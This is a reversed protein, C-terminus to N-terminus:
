EASRADIRQAVRQCMSELEVPNVLQRKPAAFGQKALGSPREVPDDAAPLEVARGADLAALQEVEAVDLQYAHRRAVEPLRELQAEIIRFADDIQQRLVDDVVRDPGEAHTRRGSRAVGFYTTNRLRR